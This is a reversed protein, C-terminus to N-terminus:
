QCKAIVEYNNYKAKENKEFNVEKLLLNGDKLEYFLEQIEAIQALLTSIESLDEKFDGSKTSLFKALVADPNEFMLRYFAGQFSKQDSKLDSKHKYDIITKRDAEEDIRDIRGYIKIDKLLVIDDKLITGKKIINECDKECALILDLGNEHKIIENAVKELQRFLLKKNLLNIEEKDCLRDVIEFFIKKDFKTRIVNKNEDCYALFLAKHVLNGINKSEISDSIEDPIKIDYIYRYAYQRKDNLFASLRSFSLPNEKEIWGFFDHKLKLEFNDDRKIKTKSKFLNLYDSDSFKLDDVCDYDANSLFRSKTKSDSSDFCIACKKANTILNRYYFRQLNESDERSILGAQECVASNIYMRAAERKPVLDDTFDVIIVGDFKLGRSELLGLVTIEGGGVHDLTLNKIMLDFLVILERLEFELSISNLFLEFEDLKQPILKNLNVNDPEKKDATTLDLIEVILRRFDSFNIKSNFKTKFENFFENSIGASIVFIDRSTKASDLNLPIDNDVIEKLEHLIKYFLTNTIRRGMAFNLMNKEDLVRLTESFEENPLIVAINKPDIGDNIFTSIKEFVYFAQMSSQSFERILITKNPNKNTEIAELKKSNLNLKYRTFEDLRPFEAIKNIFKNLLSNGMFYLNVDCIETIKLLIDLEFDKLIGDIQLHITKFNKFFETSIKYNDIITISDYIKQNQMAKLYADFVSELIELHESYQAYIDINKLNEFSKKIDSIKLNTSSIETFFSFIYESNKLFEVVNKNDSIEGFLAKFEANERVSNVANQMCIMREIENAERFEDHYIAKKFFEGLTISKPVFFNDSKAHFNRILRQSSFVYLEHNELDYNM